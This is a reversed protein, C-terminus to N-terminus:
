PKTYFGGALLIAQVVTGSEDCFSIEKPDLVKPPIDADVATPTTAALIDTVKKATAKIQGTVTSTPDGPTAYDTTVFENHNALGGTANASGATQPMAVEGGNAVSNDARVAPNDTV